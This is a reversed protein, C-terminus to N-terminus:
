EGPCFISSLKKLKLKLEDFNDTTFVNESSGTILELETIEVKGVGLAITAVNLSRLAKVPKHLLNPKTSKGDTILVLMKAASRSAPVAKFMEVANHLARDTFTMGKLDRNYENKLKNLKNMVDLSDGGDRLPLFNTATNEFYIIGVRSQSPNPGIKFNEIIRRAIGVEKIWNDPGM